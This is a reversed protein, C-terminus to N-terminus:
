SMETKVLPLSLQNKMRLIWSQYKNAQERFDNRVFALATEKPVIFPVRSEKLRLKHTLVWDAYTESKLVLLDDSEVQKVLDQSLRCHDLLNVGEVLDDESLRSIDFGGDKGITEILEYIHDAKVKEEVEEHQEDEMRM